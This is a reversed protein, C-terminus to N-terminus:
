KYREPSKEFHSIFGENNIAHQMTRPHHGGVMKRYNDYRERLQKWNPLYNAATTELSEIVQAAENRLSSKLYHLKQIDSLDKHWKKYDGDFEPLSIPPLRVASETNPLRIYEAARQISSTQSARRLNTQAAELLVMAPSIAAYYATEVASREALQEERSDLLEIQTPGALFDEYSAELRTTRMSLEMNTSADTIIGSDFFKQFSIIQRKMVGRRSILDKLEATM